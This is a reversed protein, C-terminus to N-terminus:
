GDAVGMADYDQSVTLDDLLARVVFQEFASARVRLQVLLKDPLLFTSFDSIRLGFDSLFGFDSIRLISSLTVRIPLARKRRIESKPRRIEAKM